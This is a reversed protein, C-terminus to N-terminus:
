LKPEVLDKKDSYKFYKDQECITHLMIWTERGIWQYCKHSLNDDNGIDDKVFTTSRLEALFQWFTPLFSLLELHVM